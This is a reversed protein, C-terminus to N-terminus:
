GVSWSDGKKLAGAGICTSPCLTPNVRWDKRPQAIGAMVVRVSRPVDAM